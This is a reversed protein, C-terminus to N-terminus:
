TGAASAALDVVVRPPGTLTSVRFAPKGSVGIAWTLVAEFDSVKHVEVIPTGSGPIVNVGTYTPKSPVVSLDVGSAHVMRVVLANDGKIPVTAGSGDQTVPGTAYAVAYGPVTDGQFEFVVRSASVRV